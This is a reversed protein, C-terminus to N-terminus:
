QLSKDYNECLSSQRRKSHETRPSLFPSYPNDVELGMYSSALLVTGDELKAAWAILADAAEVDMYTVSVEATLLFICKSLELEKSLACQLQELDRLDCGVALYSDSRLRVIESNASTRVHGLLDHLQPTALIIETKKNILQPYDVDVFLPNGFQPNAKGLM